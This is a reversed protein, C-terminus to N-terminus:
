EAWFGARFGPTGQFTVLNVQKHISHFYAAAVNSCDFVGLCFLKIALNHSPGRFILDSGKPTM